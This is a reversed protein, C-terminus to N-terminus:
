SSIKKPPCSPKLYTSEPCFSSRILLTFSALGNKDARAEQCGSKSDLYLSHEVRNLLFLPTNSPTAELVSQDLRLIRHFHLRNLASTLPPDVLVRHIHHSLLTVCALSLMLVCPLHPCYQLTFESARFYTTSSHQVPMSLSSLLIASPDVSHSTATITGNGTSSLLM